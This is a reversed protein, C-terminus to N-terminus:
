DQRATTQGCGATLPGARPMGVSSLSCGHELILGARQYTVYPQVTSALLKPNSFSYLLSHFSTSSLSLYVLFSLYTLSKKKDDVVKKKRAMAILSLATISKGSIQRQQRLNRVRSYHHSLKLSVLTCWCLDRNRKRQRRRQSM